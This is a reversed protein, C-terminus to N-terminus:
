RAWRVGILAVDDDPSDAALEAVIGDLLEDLSDAPRRATERLRGIGTDLSEGRREVLGDTYAILTAEGEIRVATSTSPWSDMVGLPPDPAVEIIRVDGNSRLLPPPHGANALVINRQELDVLGCLVTAFFGDRGFQIVKRLNALIASPDHGELAFGRGAFRLSAMVSAARVGRGSVDGILFVVQEDGVRVVDYWDGGVETGEVGPLYRAALELSPRSPLEQPLLAQQLTEAISRQETYLRRVDSALTVAQARRRFAYEVTSAGVLSLIVGVALVIWALDGSLTGALQTRPTAVITVITDGFPVTAVAKTGTVPVPVSSAILNRNAESRGLYLAYNLEGFPSSRPVTLHRGAPLPSEAYVTLGVAGSAAMGYGLRPSPGSLVGIVHLRRAQRLGSFFSATKGDRVLQPTSGVLALETPSSGGALRWLSVSSFGATKLKDTALAEFKAPTHEITALAVLDGLETQVSSLATTITAAVERVQLRLLRQNSNANARSAAWTLFATLGLSVVLLLSGM